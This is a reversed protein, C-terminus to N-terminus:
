PYLSTGSRCATTLLTCHLTAAYCNGTASTPLGVVDEECPNVRRFTSPATISGSGRESVCSLGGNDKCTARFESVASESSPLPMLTITPILARSRDVFQYPSSSFTGCVGVADSASGCVEVGGVISNSSCLSSRKLTFVGGSASCGQGWVDLEDNNKEPSVSSFTATQLLTGSIRKQVGSALTIPTSPQNPADYKTDLPTLSDLSLNLISPNIISFVVVPSLVLILGFIAQQIRERGEGQKSISDQSSIQLGGLIIEVIAIIAAAGILFKYLNNFFNALGATDAAVGETLNPIGALPVFGEAFVHPVLAFLCFLITFLVTKKM